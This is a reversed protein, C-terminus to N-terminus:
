TLPFSFLLLSSKWTCLLMGCHESTGEGTPSGFDRDPGTGSTPTGLNRITWDFDDGVSQVFGCLNDSRPFCGWAFDSFLHGPFKCLCVGGCWIM